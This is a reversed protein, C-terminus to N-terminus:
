SKPEKPKDLRLVRSTSPRIFQAHLDPHAAKLAGADLRNATQPKWTVLRQGNAWGEVHTGLAAKVANECELIEGDIEKADVKLNRLLVVAQHVDEDLDVADPPQVSEADYVDRLAASTAPHADTDPPDGTVVHDNWFAEVRGFLSEITGEDREVEYVRFAPRGFPLHMCAVWAHETATVFMQWQVQVFYHYPLEDWPRDGDYKAEFVGLASEICNFGYEGGDSECVFGDVTARAWEYKAHTCWTQEGAVHLGTDRHFWTAIVPELDQGFRMSDTADDENPPRLGVKNAWVSWPSAWPSEGIVGAVESAGIGNNRWEHWAARDDTM